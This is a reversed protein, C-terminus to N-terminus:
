LSYESELFCWYNLAEEFAMEEDLWEVLLDLSPYNEYYEAPMIVEQVNQEM